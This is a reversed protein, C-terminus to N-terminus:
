PHGTEEDGTPLEPGGPLPEDEGGDHHRPQSHECRREPQPHGGVQAVLPALPDPRLLARLDSGVHVVRHQLRQSQDLLGGVIRALDGPQGAALLTLQAAPEVPRGAIGAPLERGRQLLRSRFDLLRMADHDLEDDDAVTGCIRAGAGHHGGGSLRHHVGRLVRTDVAHLHVGLDLPVPQDDEDSVAAGAEVRLVHGAVPEPERLGDDAPHRAVAPAGLDAAGGALAGLDSQLRRMLSGRTRTAITSSWRSNRAPTRASSPSATSTTPSASVTASAIASTRRVWGSTTSSSTCMGSPPPCATSAPTPSPAGDVRNRASDTLSAASSTMPTM